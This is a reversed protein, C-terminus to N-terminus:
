IGLLQRANGSLIKGKLERGINLRDLYDLDNKQDIIPFDTGFLIRDPRHKLILEVAEKDPLYGFFASTDFYIDKGLLHERVEGWHRFGGFHAAIMKLGPFKERVTLIRKPTARVVMEPALEDGSHILLCLGLKQIEEYVPLVKEDDVFFEQFSPQLKIGCTKERIRKLEEKWQPYEPHLAAFYKIRPEKLSFLWNNISVVQEPRSAVACIVSLDIKNKDMYSLLTKVTPDGAFKVTYHSELSEKAKLSVKDPWAHTHIDIIM